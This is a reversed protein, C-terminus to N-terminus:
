DRQGQTHLSRLSDRLLLMSAPITMLALPTYTRFEDVRSIAFHAGVFLCLSPLFAVFFPPM